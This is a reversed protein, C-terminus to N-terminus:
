SRRPLRSQSSKRGLASVCQEAGPDRSLATLPFHGGEEGLLELPLNCLQFSDGFLVQVQDTDRQPM